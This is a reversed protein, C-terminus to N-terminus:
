LKSKLAAQVLHFAKTVASADSCQKSLACVLEQTAERTEPCQSSLYCVCKELIDCAFPSLDIPVASIVVTVVACHSIMM